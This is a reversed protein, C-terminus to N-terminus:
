KNIQESKSVHHNEENSLVEILPQFDKIQACELKAALMLSTAALLQLKSLPFNWFGVSALYRDM